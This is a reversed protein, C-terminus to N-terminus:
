QSALPQFLKLCSSSSPYVAVQNGIMPRGSVGRIFSCLGPWEAGDEEEVGEEEVEAVEENVEKDVEEDAM